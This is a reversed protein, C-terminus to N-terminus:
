QNGNDAAVAEVVAPLAEESMGYFFRGGVLRLNPGLECRGLCTSRMVQAAVGREALLRELAEALGEGCVGCSRHSKGRRKVCVMVTKM